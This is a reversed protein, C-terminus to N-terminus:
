KFPKIEFRKFETLILALRKLEEASNELPVGVQLVAYRSYPPDITAEAGLFGESRLRDTVPSLYTSYLPESGELTVSVIASVQNSPMPQQPQEVDSGNEKQAQMSRIDARLRSIERILPGLGWRIPLSLAALTLVLALLNILMQDSM